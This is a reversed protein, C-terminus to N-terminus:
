DDKKGGQANIMVTMMNMIDSRQKQALKAMEIQGDQELEMAQLQLKQAIEQMKMELEKQKLQLKAQELQAKQQAAQEEPSPGKEQQQGQFAEEIKGELERGAKFRRVAFMILEGVVEKPMAGAEAAQIGSSMFNTLAGMFEMLDQKRLSDDPAVTTDSEVDIKYKRMRDNKLLEAAAQVEQPPKDQMGSSMVITELDYLEGIVEGLIRISDRVFREVRKQKRRMRSSSGSAVQMKLEQSKYAERPNTVGRMIDAIGVIEYILEMNTQRQIVLKALVDATAANPAWLIANEVGGNAIVSNFNSDGILKNEDADFLKGISDAHASDYIGRAVISQVLRDIRGTLRNAEMAHDEYMKYEPIPELSSTTDIMDLPPPCPFFGTVGYPDDLPEELFVPCGPAVKYVKGTRKSWFEWVRAFEQRGAEYGLYNIKGHQDQVDRALPVKEAIDEGFQETLDEETLWSGFANWWVDEWRSGDSHAYDRWNVHEIFAEESVKKEPGDRYLGQVDSKIDEGEGAIEAATAEDRSVPIRTPEFEANYVVRVQGRGPVAYDSVARDMSMDFEHEEYDMACQTARELIESSLRAIPDKDLFRRRVDAKAGGTYLAPRQMETVAWLIKFRDSDNNVGDGEGRYLSICRDGREHWKEMRRHFAEIEDQIIDITDRSTADLREQEM